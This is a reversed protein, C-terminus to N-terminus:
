ISCSTQGRKQLYKQHYEEAPWFHKAPEILTVIPKPFKKALQLEQRIRQAELVQQDSHTFIVSRYQSGEDPGQRNWETPNHISFFFEVLKTYSVIKSDFEMEVVEIHGTNDNCVDEYSPSNTHGGSYGVATKIVGPLHSFKYEVGWFCGAGFTAKEMIM